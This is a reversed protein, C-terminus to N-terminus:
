STNDPSSHRPYCRFIRIFHRIYVRSQLNTTDTTPLLINSPIQVSGPRIHLHKLFLASFSLPSQSSDQSAVTNPIIMNPITLPLIDTSYTQSYVQSRPQDVKLSHKMLQRPM